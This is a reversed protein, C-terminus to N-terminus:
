KEHRHFLSGDAVIKRFRQKLSSVASVTKQGIERVGVLLAYMVMGMICLWGVLFDRLM